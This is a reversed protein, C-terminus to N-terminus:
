SNRAIVKNLYQLATHEKDNFHCAAEIGLLHEGAAAPYTAFAVEGAMAQAFGAICHVTGCSYFGEKYSPEGCWKWYKGDLDCGFNNAWSDHWSNMKLNGQDREVIWLSVHLLNAEQQEPTLKDALINRPIHPLKPLGPSTDLQISLRASQALNTITM